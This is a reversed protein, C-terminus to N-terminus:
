CIKQRIDCYPLSIRFDPGSDLWWWFRACELSPWTSGEMLIEAL